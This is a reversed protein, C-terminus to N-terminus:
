GRADTGEREVLARVTVLADGIGARHGPQQGGDARARRRAWSTPGRASWPARSRTSCRWRRASRAQEIQIITRADAGVREGLATTTTTRRRRTTALGQALADIAAQDRRPPM